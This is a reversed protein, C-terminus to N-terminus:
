LHTFLFSRSKALYDAIIKRHCNIITTGRKVIEVHRCACLLCFPLEVVDVWSIRQDAEFLFHETFKPVWVGPDREEFFPNGLESAYSAYAIGGERLLREIGRQPDKARVYMGMSARNPRLRCDVVTKVGNVKLPDFFQEKNRGGYGISYAVNQHVSM